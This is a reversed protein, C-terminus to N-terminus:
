AHRVGNWYRQQSRFGDVDVHVVVIVVV